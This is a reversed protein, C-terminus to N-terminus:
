AQQRNHKRYTQEPQIVPETEPARQIIAQIIVPHSSNKHVIIAFIAGKAQM